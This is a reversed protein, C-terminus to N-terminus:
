EPVFFVLGRSGTPEDEGLGGSGRPVFAGLFAGTQGDYRLIESVSSRQVLANNHSSVYLHGDPGFVLGAPFSLGGSGSPVFADLFAGTRGDYRLIESFNFGTVYLHGDPGFVLGSPAELGGSGSPVFVDLFTGTRGDYRLIADTVTSNVYLNSDPGFV